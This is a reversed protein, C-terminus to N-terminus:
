SFSQCPGPAVGSCTKWPFKRYGFTAGLQNIVPLQNRESSKMSNVRVAKDKLLKKFNCYRLSCRIHSSVVAESWLRRWHVDRGEYGFAWNLGRVVSLHEGMLDNM